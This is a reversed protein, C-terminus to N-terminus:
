CRGRRATRSRRGYPLGDLLQVWGTALGLIRADLPLDKGSPGAGGRGDFSAQRHRIAEAIHPQRLMRAAYAAATREAPRNSATAAGEGAPLLEGLDQLRAALYLRDADREPLGHALGVQRALEGIRRSQGPHTAHRADLGDALQEVVKRSEADVDQSAQMAHRALAIPALAVLALGPERLITSATASGALVLAMHTLFSSGHM